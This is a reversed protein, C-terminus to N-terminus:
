AVVAILKAASEAIMARMEETFFAPSTSEVQAREGDRKTEDDLTARLHSVSIESLDVVCGAAKAVEMVYSDCHPSLSFHGLAEHFSWTVVPFLAYDLGDFSGVLLSRADLKERILDDWGSTTMRADDNWLMFHTGTAVTALQNVMEHLQEYGHRPGVIVRPVLQQAPSDFRPYLSTTPDDDDLYTIVQVLDSATAFLSLISDRYHDPRGRSPMLVSIM